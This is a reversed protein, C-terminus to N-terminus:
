AQWDGRELDEPAAGSDGLVTWWTGEISFSSRKLKTDLSGRAM